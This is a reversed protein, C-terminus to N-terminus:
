VIEDVLGARLADILAREEVSLATEDLHRWNREYINLAERPTLKAGERAHWALRRLQPYRDIEIRVPIWNELDRDNSANATAPDSMPVGLVEMARAYAGSAVSPEGREIRHWTVRSLDAAQAASIISLGLQKRQERIRFGLLALWAQARGDWDRIEEM